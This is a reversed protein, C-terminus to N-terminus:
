YESKDPITLKQSCHPCSIRKGAHEMSAKLAQGCSCKFHIKPFQDPSSPPLESPGAPLPHRSPSDNMKIQVPPGEILVDDDAMIDHDLSDPNEAPTSNVPKKVTVTHGCQPCDMKGSAKSVPAEMLEGCYICKFRIM